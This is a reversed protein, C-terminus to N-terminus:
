EASCIVTPGSPDIACREVIGRTADLTRVHASDARRLDAFLAGQRRRENCSRSLIPMLSVVDANSGGYKKM